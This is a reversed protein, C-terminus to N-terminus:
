NASAEAQPEATAGNASEEALKKRLDGAFPSKAARTFPALNHAIDARYGSTPKMISDIVRRGRSDELVILGDDKALEERLEKRTTLQTEIAEAADLGDVFKTDGTRQLLFDEVVLWQQEGSQDFVPKDLPDTIPIARPGPTGHTGPKRTTIAKLDLTIMTKVKGKTKRRIRRLFGM